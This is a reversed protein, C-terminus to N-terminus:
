TRSSAARRFMADIADYHEEIVQEWEPSRFRVRGLRQRTDAVMPEYGRLASHVPRRGSPASSLGLGLMMSSDDLDLLVGDKSRSGQGWDIVRVGQPTDMWNGVHLDGHSIGAKHMSRMAASLQLGYGPEHSADFDSGFLEEGTRGALREMRIVGTRPHITLPKATPVGAAYAAAQVEFEQRAAPLDPEKQVKFISAGDKALYVEAFTSVACENIASLPLADGRNSCRQARRDALLQEIRNPKRRGGGSIPREAMAARLDVSDRKSWAYAGAAAAAGAVAAAGLIKAPTLGPGTPPSGAAGTGKRCEHAKPIFSEGCPKGLRDGEADRRAGYFRPRRANLGSRTSQLGRLLGATLSAPTRSIPDSQLSERLWAESPTPTSRFPAGTRAIRAARRAATSRTAAQRSLKAIEKEVRQVEAARKRAAAPTIPKTGSAWANKMSEIYSERAAASAGKRAALGAAGRAFGPAARWSETIRRATRGARMGEAAAGLGMGLPLGVPALPGSGWTMLGRAAERAFGEVKMSARRGTPNGSQFYSAAPLGVALGAATIGAAMAAKRRWSSGERPPRTVTAPTLAVVGKHCTAERPIFSAGCPKGAADRRLDRARAIAADLRTSSWREEAARLVLRDVTSPTTTTL